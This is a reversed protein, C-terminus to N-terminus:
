ERSVVIQGVFAWITSFTVIAAIQLAQITMIDELTSTPLARDMAPPGADL